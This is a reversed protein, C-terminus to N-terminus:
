DKHGSVSDKFMQIAQILNVIGSIYSSLFFFLGCCLVCCLVCCCCFLVEPGCLEKILTFPNFLSMFNMRGPPYPLYPDENPSGRGAGVPKSVADIESVIQISFALDGRYIVKKAEDDHYTLKMWKADEAVADGLGLFSKIQEIIGQEKVESGDGKSKKLVDEEV